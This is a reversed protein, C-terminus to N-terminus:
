IGFDGYVKITTYSYPQASFHIINHEIETIEELEIEDTSSYVAKKPNFFLELACETEKGETEVFRLVVANNEKESKKLAVLRVNSKDLKMVCEGLANRKSVILRHDNENSWAPVIDSHKGNYLLISLHYSAQCKEVSTYILNNCRNSSAYLYIHSKDESFDRNFRNFKINGLHFVPMDRTYIAVGSNEGDM